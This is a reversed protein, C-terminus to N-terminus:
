KVSLKTSNELKPIASDEKSIFLLGGLVCSIGVFHYWYLPEDLFYYSCIVASIPMLATLVAASNGAINRMGQNMLLVAIVTVVVGSYIILLWDFVPVSQFSFSRAQLLAFPLFLITGIVATMTTIFLSSIKPSVLKGFTIFIGECFVAGLMLLNGLLSNMTWNANSMVGFVNIIIAGTMAFLVGVGQNMSLKEKFLLFSIISIIAPTTSTIIGSEVATTLKLGYLMLISFLFVGFLSQFFLILFDRRTLKPIKKELIFFLVSLIVAGILMRLESAIFIPFHVIIHKSVVVFSGVIIMALGLQIQGKLYCPM